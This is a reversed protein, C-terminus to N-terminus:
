NSARRYLYHDSNGSTCIYLLSLKCDSTSENDALAEVNALSVESLDSTKSGLNVNMVAVAAIALLAIGGWIKKKM